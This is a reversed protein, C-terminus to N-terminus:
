KVPPRDFFPNKSTASLPIGFAFKVNKGLLGLYIASQGISFMIRNDIHHQSAVSVASGLAIGLDNSNFVCPIDKHKNKTSCDKFGCMGCKKLGQSKIYSGILVIAPSNLINESDRLFFPMKYKKGHAIMHKAVKQITEDTLIVIELNDVGRAKPATRAALAMLKAVRLITKSNIEKENIVTM